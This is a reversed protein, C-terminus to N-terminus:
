RDEMQIEAADVLAGALCAKNGCCVCREETWIKCKDCWYDEGMKNAEMRNKLGVLLVTIGVGAIFMIMVWRARM